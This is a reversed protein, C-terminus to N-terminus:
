GERDAELVRALLKLKAIVGRLDESALLEKSQRITEDLFEARGESQLVVVQKAKAYKYAEAVILKIAEPSCSLDTSVGEAMQLFMDKYAKVLGHLSLNEAEITAPSVLTFPQLGTEVEQVLGDWVDRVGQFLNEVILGKERLFEPEIKDLIKARLREGMYTGPEFASSICSMWDTREHCYGSWVYLHMLVDLGREIDRAVTSEGSLARALEELGDKLYQVLEEGRSEELLAVVEPEEQERWMAAYMDIESM